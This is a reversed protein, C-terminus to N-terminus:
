LTASGGGRSAVAEDVQWDTLKAEVFSVSYFLAIGIAMLWAIGAFVRETQIQGTAQLLVYGLGSNSGVFEGVVAGVVAFSIAVKLGGFLSPLSNPLQLKILTQVRNAGMSRLLQVADRDVSKMGVVFAIVIPFFAIMIVILVKPLISFGFWVVFLPAIAVKPITQTAV